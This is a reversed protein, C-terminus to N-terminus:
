EAADADRMVEHAEDDDLVTVDEGPRALKAAVVDGSVTLVASFGVSSWEIVESVRGLQAALLEVEFM